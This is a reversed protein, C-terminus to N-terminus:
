VNRLVLWLLTIVAGIQGALQVYENRTACGTISTIMSACGLVVPGWLNFVDM